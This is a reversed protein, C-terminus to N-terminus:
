PVHALETHSPDIRSHRQIVLSHRATCIALPKTCPIFPRLMSRPSQWWQERKSRHMQKQMGVAKAASAHTKARDAAHMAQGTLQDLTPAMRDLFFRPQVGIWVIM